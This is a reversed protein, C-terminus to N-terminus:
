YIVGPIFDTGLFEIDDFEARLSEEYFPTPDVLESRVEPHKGEAAALAKEVRSCVEEPVDPYWDAYPHFVDVTYWKGGNKVNFTCYDDKMPDFTGPFPEIENRWPM